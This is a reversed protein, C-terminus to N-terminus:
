RPGGGYARGHRHGRCSTCHKWRPLRTHVISDVLCSKVRTKNHGHLCVVRARPRASSFSAITMPPTSPRELESVAQQTLDLNNSKMLFSSTACTGKQSPRARSSTPTASDISDLHLRALRNPLNVLATSSSEARDNDVVPDRGDLYVTTTARATYSHKLGNPLGVGRLVASPERITIRPNGQVDLVQLHEIEVSFLVM